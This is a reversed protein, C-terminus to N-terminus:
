ATWSFDAEEVFDKPLGDFLDAFDKQQGEAHAHAHSQSAKAVKQILIMECAAATDSDIDLAAKLEDQQICQEKLHSELARAVDDESPANDVFSLLSSTTNMISNLGVVGCPPEEGGLMFTRQMRQMMLSDASDASDATEGETTFSIGSMSISADDVGVGVGVGMREMGMGSSVATMEDDHEIIADIPLMSLTPVIDITDIDHSHDVTSTDSSVSSTDSDIQKSTCSGKSRQYAILATLGRQQAALSAKHRLSDAESGSIVGKKHRTKKAVKMDANEKNHPSKKGDVIESRPALIEEAEEPMLEKILNVIAERPAKVKGDKVFNRRMASNWRNKASNESRGPLLRAIECWRNGLVAQAGVLVKDEEDSWGGKKLTPDLHNSWRERCQKGLRGPICEAIDSWRTM